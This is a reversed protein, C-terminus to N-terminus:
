PPSPPPPTPDVIGYPPLTAPSERGVDLAEPAERMLGRAVDFTAARARLDADGPRRAAHRDNVDRLMIRELEALTAPRAPPRLDRIPERGPVIGVGQRTPAV